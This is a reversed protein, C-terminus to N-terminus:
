NLIFLILIFYIFTRLFFLIHLNIKRTFILISLADLIKKFIEPETGLKFRSGIMSIKQILKQALLFTRFFLKDEIKEPVYINSLEVAALMTVGVTIAIFKKNLLFNM